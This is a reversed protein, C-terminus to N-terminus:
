TCCREHTFLLDWCKSNGGPGFRTENCCGDKQFGISWCVYGANSMSPHRQQWTNKVKSLKKMSLKKMFWQLSQYSVFLGPRMRGLTRLPQFKLGWEDDLEEEILAAFRLVDRQTGGELLVTVNDDKFGEHLVWDDGFLVGGPPLAKWALSLELLVEGEEHASDLYIVQPLPTIQREALLAVLRLAVISTTQLPLICSQLGAARVNRRFHDFIASGGDKRLMKRRDEPQRTWLMFLDGLFTDVAVVSANFEHALIRETAVTASGGEFAGLELWFTVPKPAAALVLDVDAPAIHTIWPNIPESAEDLKLDSMPDNGFFLEDVLAQAVPPRIGERCDALVLSFLSAVSVLAGMACSTTTKLNGRTTKWIDQNNGFPLILCIPSFYHDPGLFPLSFADTDYM